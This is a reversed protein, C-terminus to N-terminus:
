QETRSTDYVKLTYIYKPTLLKFRTITSENNEQYYDKQDHDPAKESLVHDQNIGELGQTGNSKLSKRRRYFM